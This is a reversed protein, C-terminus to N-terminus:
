SYLKGKYVRGNSTILATFLYVAYGQLAPKAEIKSIM